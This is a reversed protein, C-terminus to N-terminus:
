HSPAEAKFLFVHDNDPTLNLGDYTRNRTVWLPGRSPNQIPHGPLYFGLANPVGKLIYRYDPEVSVATRAPLEKAIREFDATVATRTEEGEELNRNKVETSLVLCACGMLAALLQGREPVASCLAAFFVLNLSFLYMSTYDHFATLGRMPAIWALGWLSLIVLPARLGTRRTRIWIGVVAVLVALAWYRVSKSFRTAVGYPHLGKLTRKVQEDTFASWALRTAHSKNFSEDMSLRRQASQVIGVNAVSTGKIRAETLVNHGLCLGAIGIALLCARTQTSLVLTKLIGPMGGRMTAIAEVIWWLGLIAFSAYGRGMVVAVSTAAYVERRAGMRYFRAIAWLLITAGLLAPQDFHVMDRYRVMYHGSGALATAAVALALPVEVEVLVAVALVLTLGYILNMIQRALQIQTRLPLDFTNLAAHMTASFFRPYRDFYYYSHDGATDVFELTYGLFGNSPDAKQIIALAHASVWGRHGRRFGADPTQDVVVFLIALVLALLAAIRQVKAMDRM